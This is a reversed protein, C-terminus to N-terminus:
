TVINKMSKIIIPIPKPETAQNCAYVIAYSEMDLGVTGEMQSHIRKEILKHNAVVTTGCAM